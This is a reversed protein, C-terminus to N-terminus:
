SRYRFRTKPTAFLGPVPRPLGSGGSGAIGPSDLRKEGQERSKREPSCPGRGDFTKEVIPRIRLEGLGHFTRETMFEAQRDENFSQVSIRVWRSLSM